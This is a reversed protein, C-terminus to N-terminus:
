THYISSAFKLFSALNLYTYPVLYAESVLCYVSPSFRYLFLKRLEYSCWFYLCLEVFPSFVVYLWINGNWIAAFM